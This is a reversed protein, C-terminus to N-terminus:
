IIVIEYTTGHLKYKNILAEMESQTFVIAAPVHVTFNAGAITYTIDIFQSNDSKAGVHFSTDLGAGVFAGNVELINNTIYIGAGFKEILLHELTLTQGNWKIEEVKETSYSVFSEHITKIGNFCAALWAIRTPKRKLTSLLQKVLKKLDIDYSTLAM